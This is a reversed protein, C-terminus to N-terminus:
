FIIINMIYTYIINKMGEAGSYHNNNCNLDDLKEEKYLLPQPFPSLSYGPIVISSLLLSSETSSKTLSSNQHYSSLIPLLKTPSTNIPTTIIATLPSDLKRKSASSVKTTKSLSTDRKRRLTSSM